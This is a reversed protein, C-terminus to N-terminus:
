RRRIPPRRSDPPIPRSTSRPSADARDRERIEWPLDNHGDILPTAALVREVHQALAADTAGSATAARAPGLAVTVALALALALAAM